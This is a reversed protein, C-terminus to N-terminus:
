KNYSVDVVIITVDDRSGGSDLCKQLLKEAAEKPSTSVASKPSNGNTKSSSSSSSSKRAAAKGAAGLSLVDWLGDSGLVFRQTKEKGKETSIKLPVNIVEPTCIVSKSATIDGITRSVALGGPNIRVDSNDSSRHLTAEGRAVCETLRRKETPNDPRHDTTVQRFEHAGSADDTMLRSDGTNAVIISPIVTRSSGKGEGTFQITFQQIVHVLNLIYLLLLLLDSCLM